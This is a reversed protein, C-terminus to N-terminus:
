VKVEAEENNGLNATDKPKTNFTEIFVDFIADFTIKEVRGDLDQFIAQRNELKLIMEINEESEEMKMFELMRKAEEINETKFFLKYTLTNKIEESPIDLVSHGNFICGCNLSRGQRALFEFLKKGEPTNKFLSLYFKSIIEM